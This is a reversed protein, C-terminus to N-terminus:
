DRNDDKNEKKNKDGKKTFDKIQKGIDSSEDITSFLKTANSLSISGVIDLVYLNTSDNVLVVVGNTKGQKENLFIDFSKGESRSTMIPEFSESKYGSTLKKYNFDKNKEIMLFKMKQIDKILEDFEKDNGQNLMRLTNNYFFLSLGEGYKKHLEETTKTQAVGTLSIVLGFFLVSLRKFSMM